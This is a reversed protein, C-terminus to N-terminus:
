KDMQGNTRARREALVPELVRRLITRGSKDSRGRLSKIKNLIIDQCAKQKGGITVIWAPDADLKENCYEKAAAIDDPSLLPQRGSNRHDPEPQDPQPAGTANTPTTAGSRSAADIQSESLERKVGSHQPQSPAPTPALGPPDGHKRLTQEIRSRLQDFHPKSVYYDWGFTSQPGKSRSITTSSSLAKELVGPRTWFKGHVRERQIPETRSERMCDLEDNRLAEFLLQKARYYSFPDDKKLLESLDHHATPLKCRNTDGDLRPEDARDGNCKREM